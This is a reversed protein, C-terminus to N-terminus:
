AVRTRTETSSTDADALEAPETMRLHSGTEGDVPPADYIERGTGELPSAEQPLVDQALCFLLGVLCLCYLPKPIMWSKSVIAAWCINCFVLCKQYVLRDRRRHVQMLNPSPHVVFRSCSCIALKIRLRCDTASVFNDKTGAVCAIIAYFEAELPTGINKEWTWFIVPPSTSWSRSSIGTSWRQTSLLFSRRVLPDINKAM